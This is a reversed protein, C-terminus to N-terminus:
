IGSLCTVVAEAAEDCEGLAPVLALRIFGEGGPGFARGPSVVIGHDLLRETVTLDDEVGVWLYIGARSGVVELGLKEFAARLVGRKQAFINRREAVHVDDSWAAMAAAQTFEPPATGTSTRLSVLAAIAEADGVIAGSRYGTMGSRKSLSLYSLVGLAGPGAVELVSTPPDGEYLDVYCEDACVLVDNARATVVFTEIESRTMVSGAPNHPSCTWVIRAQEWVEPAVQDARFVFDDSLRVPYSSAGALVSGREYIPYGPTPWIVAEGADRDVFALPTSFIAEKSGTVPLVQSAPDVEVGFRRHVYGAIAARLDVLGRTTPYQSVEPVAQKLAERIFEPTPERPDGISFDVLREGAARMARAKDQIQAIPYTGLRALAPNVRM